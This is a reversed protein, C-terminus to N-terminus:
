VPTVRALARLKEIATVHMQSVRQPSVALRRGIARLSAGGFYHAIVVRRHRPALEGILRTLAASSQRREVVAAPDDGACPSLREGEPLPADLSLPQGCHTACAARGFGPHLREIELSSPVEGRIVAIEYRRNEGERALRRARESVPDMRRIGNLMAGLILRKAYQKLPTGRAPDYSDVARVLGVSGDGILDDLDLTPVLRKLRRAITRVMPFFEAVREDRENM